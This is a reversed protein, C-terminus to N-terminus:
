IFMQKVNTNHKLFTGPEVPPVNNFLPIIDYQHYKEYWYNYVGAAFIEDDFTGFYMNIGNVLFHVGYTTRKVGIEPTVGFYKSPLEDQHAKRYEISKLNTNDFKHLFVCTDKSYIRNSHPINQQLYDKDIQYLTPWRLWKDYQFLSPYDAYFTDFDLWRDDITVGLGGYASYNSSKTNFIRKKIYNLTNRAYRLYRRQRDCEDVLLMDLPQMCAATPDACDGDLANQIKIQRVYGTNLFKITAMPSGTERSGQITGLVIYPGYNDSYYLKNFNLGYNPDRIIGNKIDYLEGVVISESKLIKVKMLPTRGNKAYGAFEIIQMPGYKKSEYVQGIYSSYDM